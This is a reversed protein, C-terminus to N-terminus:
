ALDGGTPHYKPPPGGIDPYLSQGATTHVVTSGQPQGYNNNVYIHEQIRSGRTDMQSGVPASPPPMSNYDRKSYQNIPNTEDADGIPIYHAKKPSKDRKGAKRSAFCGGCCLYNCVRFLLVTCYAILAVVLLVFAIELSYWFISHFMQWLSSETPYEQAIIYVMKFARCHQEDFGNGCNDEGNCRFVFCFTLLAERNETVCRLNSDICQSGDQFCDFTGVPCQKSMKSNRKFLNIIMETQDFQHKQGTIVRKDEEDGEFIGKDFEFFIWKPPETQNISSQVSDLLLKNLASIVPASDFEYPSLNWNNAVKNGFLWYRTM